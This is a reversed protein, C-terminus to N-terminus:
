DECSRHPWNGDTLWGKQTKVKKLHKQCRAWQLCWTPCWPHCFRGSEPTRSQWENWTFWFHNIIKAKYQQHVNHLIMWQWHWAYFVRLSWNQNVKSNRFFPMQWKPLKVNTKQEVSLLLSNSNVWRIHHQELANEHEVRLIDPVQELHLQKHVCVCVCSQRTPTLLGQVCGYCGCSVWAVNASEKADIWPLFHHKRVVM